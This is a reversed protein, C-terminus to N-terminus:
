ELAMVMKCHITDANSTDYRVPNSGTTCSTDVTSTDGVLGGGGVIKGTSAFGDDFKLDFEWADKPLFVPGRCHYGTPPGAPDPMGFTITNTVSLAQSGVMMSYCSGSIAGEPVNLGPLATTASYTTADPILSAFRLHQWARVAEKGNDSSGAIQRNGNGNCGTPMGGDPCVGSGGTSWYTSAIECDGPICNYKDFFANYAQRFRSVDRMIKVTQSSKILHQGVLVGGIVLGIIVLVISLEILTFGPESNELLDFAKKHKSMIDPKQFVSGKALM